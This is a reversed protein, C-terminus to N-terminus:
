TAAAPMAHRAAERDAASGHLAEQIQEEAAKPLSTKLVRGGYQSLSEVAKDTTVKDVILFLASTGPQLMDRVEQQFEKSIGAKTIAGILAGLGAGIALGFVPIFFILGFL